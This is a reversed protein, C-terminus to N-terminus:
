WRRWLTKQIVCEGLWLGGRYTLSAWLYRLKYWVDVDFLVGIKLLM